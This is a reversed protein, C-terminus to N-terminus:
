MWWRTQCRMLVTVVRAETKKSRIPHPCVNGILWNPWDPQVTKTRQTDDPPSWISSAIRYRIRWPHRWLGYGMYRSILMEGGVALVWRAIARMGWHRSSMSPFSSMLAGKKWVRWMGGVDTATRKYMARAKAELDDWTDQYAGLEAEGAGREFLVHLLNDLQVETPKLTTLHPVLLSPAGRTPDATPSHYAQELRSVSSVTSASSSTDRM